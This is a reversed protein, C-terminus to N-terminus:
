RFVMKYYAKKLDRPAATPPTELVAYYDEDFDLKLQQQSPQQPLQKQAYLAGGRGHFVARPDHWQWQTPMMRMRMTVPMTVRVEGRIWVQAAHAYVTSIVAVRYDGLRAGGYGSARFSAGLPLWAVLLVLSCLFHVHM